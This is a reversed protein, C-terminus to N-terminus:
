PGGVESLLETLRRCQEATLRQGLEAALQRLAPDTADSEILRTTPAVAGTKAGTLEAIVCCNDYTVVKDSTEAV